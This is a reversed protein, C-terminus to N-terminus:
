FDYGSASVLGRRCQDAAGCFGHSFSGSEGPALTDQEFQRRYQVGALLQLRGIRLFDASGM